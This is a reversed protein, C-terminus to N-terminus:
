PKKLFKVADANLAQTTNFGHFLEVFGSRGATFDWEGLLVWSGGNLSQDINGIVSKGGAHQIEYWASRDMNFLGGNAGRNGWHGFVQYRGDEPIDPSWKASAKYAFSVKSGQLFANDAGSDNWPGKLEFGQDDLNDVIIETAVGPQLQIFRVADASTTENSKTNNRTLKVCNQDAPDLLYAGLFYWQGPRQNQNLTISSIGNAHLVEFHAMSDRNYFIGNPGRAASHAYVEYMGQGEIRPTFKAWTGPIDNFLSAGAYGDTASSTQWSGDSSFGSGPIDNDVILDGPGGNPSSSPFAVFRIADASTFGGITNRRQLVVKDADGGQFDFIGLLNFRGGNQRQDVTTDAMGSAHHIIYHASHDRSLIVGGSTQNESWRAYVGYTGPGNLNPSFIAEAGPDDSFLSDGGFVGPASSSQWIGNQTFGPGGDDIILIDGSIVDIRFKQESFDGGPNAARVTINASGQNRLEPLIIQRHQIDQPDLGLDLLEQGPGNFIGGGNSSNPPLIEGLPLTREPHNGGVGIRIDNGPNGLLILDDRVVIPNDSEITIQILGPDDIIGGGTFLDIPQPRNGSIVEVDSIPAIQPAPDRFNADVFISFIELSGSDEPFHDRIELEWLGGVDTGAFIALPQLPQFSGPGYPPDDTPLIQFPALDDFLVDEINDGGHGFVGHIGDKGFNHVRSVLQVKTGNHHLFMELDGVWTHDLDILVQLHNISASDPVNIISFAPAGTGDNAGDGVTPIRQPIDQAQYQRVEALLTVNTVFLLSTCLVALSSGSKFLHYLKSM